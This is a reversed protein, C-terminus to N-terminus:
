KSCNKGPPRRGHNSCNQAIHKRPPWSKKGNSALWFCNKRQLTRYSSHKSNFDSMKQQLTSRCIKMKEISIFLYIYIYIYREREREREWDCRKSDWCLCGARRGHTPSFQCQFQCNSSQFKVAMVVLDLFISISTRALFQAPKQDRILSKSNDVQVLSLIAWNLRRQSM